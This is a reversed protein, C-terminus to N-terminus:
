HAPLGPGRCDLSYGPGIVLNSSFDLDFGNEGCHGQFINSLSSKLKVFFLIKVLKYNKRSSVEDFDFYFM